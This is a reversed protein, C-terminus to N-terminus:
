LRASRPFSGLGKGSKHYFIRGDEIMGHVMLIPMGTRGPQSIHMLHLSFPQHNLDSQDLFLSQYRM